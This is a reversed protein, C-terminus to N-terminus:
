LSLICFHSYLSHQNEKFTYGGIRNRNPTQRTPLIRWVVSARDENAQNRIVASPPM